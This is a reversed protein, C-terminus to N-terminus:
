SYGYSTNSYTIKNTKGKKIRIASLVLNQKGQLKRKMEMMSSL